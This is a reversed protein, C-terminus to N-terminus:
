TAAQMRKLITALEGRKVAAKPQGDRIIGSQKAWEMADAEWTAPQEATEEVYRKMFEKFVQYNEETNLMDDNGKIFLKTIESKIEDWKEPHDVAWWPCYKGTVDYHRIVASPQLHYRQLLAVALECARQKTKASAEPGTKSGCMEISITNTNNAIKWHSQVSYPTKRSGMGVSWAVYQPPVSVWIGNDDVFYHASAGRNAGQYYKCNNLATDNTNGTYHMVIYKIKDPSRKITYYFNSHHCEILPLTDLNIM